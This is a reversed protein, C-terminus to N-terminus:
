DVKIRVKGTLLLDMLGRKIRELKAREQGEVTLKKDVTLLTDAIRQQEPIPPLAFKFKSIAKWSTRPHNTGSTTAIAHDLFEKSHLIYALFEKSVDNKNKLVLLDTSCIGDFDVLAAKDLYPRLKGYLLDGSYFKFKSSKLFADKSYNRVKIEGSSIHELGVFTYSGTETPQVMDNRQECVAGLTVVDWDKPINGIPTQKTETHGIGHTLLQQMLGRKLRETKAIVQDSLEIASDVVGLVEVIARQEALPPLPITTSGVLSTNLNGQTGTQKMGSFKGEYKQLMYFLFEKDVEKQLNRFVVFGDHICAEMDVLIPKGITACISMILDGHNVEVSKSAGLKSLYQSTKRLYKYTETVDSIRVWGRGKDSFYSPDGIPRPSAGRRVEAIEELLVPNWDQPIKGIPSEQFHTEKYLPLPTEQSCAIPSPITATM